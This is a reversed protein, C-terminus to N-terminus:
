KNENSNEKIFNFSSYPANYKMISISCIELLVSNGIYNTEPSMINDWVEGRNIWEEDSINDPKDTNNFYFFEEVKDMDGLFDLSNKVILSTNDYFSRAYFESNYPYICLNCDPDFPSCVMNLIEKNVNNILENQVKLAHDYVTTTIPKINYIDRLNNKIIEKARKKIDWLLSYLEESTVNLKWGNYIKTSM